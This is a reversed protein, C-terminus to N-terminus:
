LNYDARKLGFSYNYDDSEYSIVVTEWDRYAFIQFLVTEDKNPAISKPYKADGSLDFFFNIGGNSTKGDFVAKYSGDLGIIKDNNSHLTYKLNYGVQNESKNEAVFVLSVVTQTLVGEKHTEGQKLYEIGNGTCGVLSFCSMMLALKNLHKM